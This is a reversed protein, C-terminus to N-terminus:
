PFWSAFNAVGYILVLNTVFTTFFAKPVHAGSSGSKSFCIESIGFFSVM